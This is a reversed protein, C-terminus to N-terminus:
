PWPVEEQPDRPPETETMLQAPSLGTAQTVDAVAQALENLLDLFSLRSQVIATRAAFVQLLTIQGAKFQDEYLKLIQPITQGLEGRSQEVLRRAREYRQIAARSELVARNELQAATIQQQRLEAYRQEAMPRGSNVVPIDIQAQVGWFETSADDHQYMPGIQLNPRRMANALRLNNFAGAEAARAAVVDPREAVMQRITMDDPTHPAIRDVPHRRSDRSEISTNGAGGSIAEDLSRWQWDTWEDALELPETPDLNLQNRLRIMATQYSANALRQKRRSSQAQLRALAVDATNAQGARERRQLVGVLEENLDVVTQMMDRLERQYIGAFYLRTTQATTLLEAQRITGIVQEWNASAAGTRFRQQGGFEFTQVIVHQQSVAGDYGNRDRSYPFVQTQFQPNWPYTEAAHYAAHAVPEAARVAALEPNRVHAIIIADVLRLPGTQESLMESEFSAQRIPQSHNPRANAGFENEPAALRRSDCDSHALSCSGVADGASSRRVSTMSHSYLWSSPSRCGTLALLILLGMSGWITGIQCDPFGREKREDPHTATLHVMVLPDQQVRMNTSSFDIRGNDEYRGNCEDCGRM